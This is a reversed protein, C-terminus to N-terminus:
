VEGVFKLIAGIFLFFGGLVAFLQLFQFSPVIGHRFFGAVLVAIGTGFFLDGTVKIFGRGSLISMLIVLLIVFIFVMFWVAAIM